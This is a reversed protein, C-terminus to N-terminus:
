SRPSANGCSALAEKAGKFSEYKAWSKLLDREFSADKGKVEKAIIVEKVSQIEYWPGREYSKRYCLEGGM